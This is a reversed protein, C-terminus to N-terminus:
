AQIMYTKHTESMAEVNKAIQYAMAAYGFDNYHLTNSYTRDPTDHYAIGPMYENDVIGCKFRDAIQQIVSNTINIDGSTKFCKVLLVRYGSSIYANVIRAYNGTHTNAWLTPDDGSVDTELTDTLGGNTGLFIVALANIKPAIQSQYENWWETPNFGPTAVSTVTAGTIHGLIVPYPKYSKRYATDSTYVAGWTLSDGVCEINTFASLINNYLHRATDDIATQFTPLEFATQYDSQEIQVYVVNHDYVSGSVLQVGLRCGTKASSIHFTVPNYIDNVNAINNGEADKLWVRMRKTSGYTLSMTYTGAKLIFDDTIANQAGGSASPTGNLDICGNDYVVDCNYFSTEKHGKPLLNKSNRFQEFDYVMHHWPNWSSGDNFRLYINAYANSALFIQMIRASNITHLVFIRSPNKEPINSITQSVAYTPIIYNGATVLTDVDTGSEIIQANDTALSLTKSIKETNADVSSQVNAISGDVYSQTAYTAWQTWGSSLYNRAMLPSYGNILCIQWVRNDQTTEIVILMYGRSTIPLTGNLEAAAAATLVKYVGATTLTDIDTGAPITPVRDSEIPLYDNLASKLDSVDNGLVAQTWHGSTWSEATTIATTCRYLDGNYYVYAGVPYVATDSYSPAIDAMLGTWSSPITAVVANIRNILDVVNSTTGPSATGSSTRGATGIAAYVATTQGNDTVFITLGFRGPIDYCEPRLTVSVVGGSASGTLAVDTNDPRLFVGSVSGSLTIINGADDVGSINFTHGGSEAQFIMGKLDEITVMRNQNWVRNIVNNAM